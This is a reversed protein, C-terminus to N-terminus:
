VMFNWGVIRDTHTSGAPAGIELLASDRQKMNWWRGGSHKATAMDGKEAWSTGDFEETNAASPIPDGDGGGCCIAATQTGFGM